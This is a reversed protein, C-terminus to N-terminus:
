WHEYKVIADFPLRNKKTVSPDSPYGLPMLAVVRVEPPVRLIQKVKNEDFAGIWCTGLGLEVAALTVHDLAIAVDIPYCAQGCRMIHGDTQACAAIVIPAEGVFAQNNAAEALRRKTEGDRVIIFRWEQRNSASPALRGAELVARLKEEEVDKSLYKRVSKRARVADLVDM